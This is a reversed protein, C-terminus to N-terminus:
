RRAFLAKEVAEKYSRGLPIQHENMILRNREVRTIRSVAAIFSEHVRIFRDAPFIVHMAKISGKIVIKSTITYIIAYDKLGQIYLVNDFALKIRPVGSEM